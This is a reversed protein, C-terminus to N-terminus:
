GEFDLPIVYEDLLYYGLYKTTFSLDKAQRWNTEIFEIDFYALCGNENYIANLSPGIYSQQLPEDGIIIFGPFASQEWGRPVNLKLTIEDLSCFVANVDNGIFDFYIRLIESAGGDPHPLREVEIVKVTGLSSRVSFDCEVVSHERPIPVTIKMEERRMLTLYPIHLTASKDGVPIDFIFTQYIEAASVTDFCTFGSETVIYAESKWLDPNKVGAIASGFGCLWDKTTNFPYYNVILRDEDRRSSTTISIGNHTDTPGIEALDNVDQSAVFTFSLPQSFGTISVEFLDGSNPTEMQVWMSLRSMATGIEASSTSQFNCKEGNIYLAFNESYRQLGRELEIDTEGIYWGNVSITINMSGATCIANDLKATVQASNDEIKSVIPNMIYFSINSKEVIGFGPIFSFLQVFASSVQPIALISIVLILIVAAALTRKLVFARRYIFTRRFIRNEDYKIPQEGGIEMYARLKNDLEMDSLTKNM